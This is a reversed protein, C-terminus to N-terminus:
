GTPASTPLTPEAGNVIRDELDFVQTALGTAEWGQVMLVPKAANAIVALRTAANLIPPQVWSFDDPVEDRVAEMLARRGVSDNSRDHGSRAFALWHNTISTPGERVAAERELREIVCGEASELGSLAFFAPLCLPTEMLMAKADAYTRCTEFVRRLLHAPPLGVTWWVGVRGIAWDFWCSRTFRRLPPQNIAASFRGPAVATLVGVFGPWTVNYYPGASGNQRAVVAHSGLGALSWDLTRLMRNGHGSPDSGVGSTCTWEYSLNLLIAGPVALREAVAAIEDRYPNGTRQLWRWSARDGLRLAAQGYRQRGESLISAAREPAQDLLTPPGSTGVDLLPISPLEELTSAGRVVARSSNWM